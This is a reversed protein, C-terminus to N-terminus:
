SRTGNWTARYAQREGLKRLLMEMTEQVRKAWAPNDCVPQKAECDSLETYCDNLFRDDFLDGLQEQYKEARGKPRYPQATWVAAQVPMQMTM